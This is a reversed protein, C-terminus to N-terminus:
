KLREIKWSIGCLGNSGKDNPQNYVFNGNIKLLIINLALLDFITM